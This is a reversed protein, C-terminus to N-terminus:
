AQVNEATSHRAGAVLWELVDREAYVVLRGSKFYRPGGGKTREQELTNIKLGRLEAAEASTLPRRKLQWGFIAALQELTLHALSPQAPTM